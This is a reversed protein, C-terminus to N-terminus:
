GPPFFPFSCNHYGATQDRRGGRRGFGREPDMTNDAVWRFDLCAMQSMRIESIIAERKKSQDVRMDTRGEGVSWSPLTNREHLTEVALSVPLTCSARSM